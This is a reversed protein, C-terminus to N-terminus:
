LFLFDSANMLGAAGSITLTGTGGLASLAITADAGDASIASRIDRFSTVGFGSLVIRDTGDQWDAIRDSNATKTFLFQDASSGGTLTDRGTGGALTDSSRGGILVDNGADGFIRDAGDNGDINDNGGAGRLSDNGSDGRFFDNFNGVGLITDNGYGGYALFMSSASLTIHDDGANGYIESYGNASGVGVPVVVVDNGETCAVAVDDGAINGLDTIITLTESIIASPSIWVLYEIASQGNSLLPIIIEHGGMTRFILEDGTNIFEGSTGAPAGHPSNSGYTIFAYDTGGTDVITATSILSINEFLYNDDASSGILTETGGSAPIDAM